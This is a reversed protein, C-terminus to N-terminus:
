SVVEVQKSYQIGRWQHPLDKVEYKQQSPRNNTDYKVGRYTVKMLKSWLFSITLDREKPRRKRESNAFLSHVFDTGRRGVQTRYRPHVYTCVLM